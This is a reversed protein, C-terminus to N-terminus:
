CLKVLLKFEELLFKPVFNAVTYKSTKVFNDKFSYSQEDGINIIRNPLANFDEETSHPWGKPLGSPLENEDTAGFMESWFSRTPPTVLRERETNASGRDINM